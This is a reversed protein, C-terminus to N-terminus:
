RARPPSAWPMTVRPALRILARVMDALLPVVECITGPVSGSTGPVSGGGTGCGASGTPTRGRGAAPVPGSRQAPAASTADPRAGAAADPGRQAPTWLVEGGAEKRPPAPVAPGSGSSGGAVVAVPTTSIPDVTGAPIMGPASALRAAPAALTAGPGLPFALLMTTFVVGCLIGTFRRARRPEGPGSIRHQPRIGRFRTDTAPAPPRIPNRGPSRRVRRGPTSRVPTRGPLPTSHPALGPFRTRPRSVISQSETGHAARWSEPLRHARGSRRPASGVRNSASRTEEGPISLGTRSGARNMRREYRRARREVESPGATGPDPHLGEGPAPPLAAGSHVRAWAPRPHPGGRSGGTRQETTRRPWDAPPHRAPEGAARPCPITTPPRYASTPVRDRNAATVPGAGTTDDCTMHRAHRYHPHAPVRLGAGTSLGSRHVLFTESLPKRCTAPLRDSRGIEPERLGPRLSASRDTNASHEHRRVEQRRPTRTRVPRSRAGGHKNM